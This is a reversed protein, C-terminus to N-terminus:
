HDVNIKNLSQIFTIRMNRQISWRRIFFLQIPPFPSLFFLLLTILFIMYFPDSEKLYSGQYIFNSSMFIIFMGVELTAYILAYKKLKNIRYAAFLNIYPLVSLAIQLWIKVKKLQKSAEQELNILVNGCIPCFLILESPIIASCVDCSTLYHIYYPFKSLIYIDSHLEM